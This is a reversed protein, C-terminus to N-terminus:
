LRRSAMGGLLFLFGMGLVKLIKLYSNGAILLHRLLKRDKESDPTSGDEQSGIASVIWNLASSKTTQGSKPKGLLVACTTVRDRLRVLMILIFRRRVAGVYDDQQVQDLGCYLSRVCNVGEKGHGVFICSSQSRWLNRADENWESLKPKYSPHKEVNIIDQILALLQNVRTTIFPKKVGKDALM